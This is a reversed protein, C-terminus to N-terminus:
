KRKTDPQLGNGAPLSGHIFAKENQNINKLKNGKLIFYTICWAVPASLADTLFFLHYGLWEVLWGSVAMPLIMCAAIIPVYLLNVTNRYRNGSISQVLTKCICLGIGFLLQAQFTAICLIPLSTPPEMTMTLYVLPSLGLVISMPWFVKQLPIWKMLSQGITIGLCFAIVGVTGQAFGLEQITCGLGGNAEKDLLFLVRAYFMLGQPLLMLFLTIVYRWWGPQEKIREIVHIEAKVSSRMSHVRAEDGVRPSLLVLLHYVTIIVFLAATIYCGMAWARRIQRFFVEMSGVILILAGYTFIVAIQSLIVKPTNYIAQLRPRLMREYYMRAVLEHWACLMSIIFLSAFVPTVGYPFSASLAFLAVCLIAETLHLMQRFHGARRVWSRIFSKLVWPLFLLSSLATAVSGSVGLQLFMLLSVFTVMAAPIEEAAFITLIRQYNM